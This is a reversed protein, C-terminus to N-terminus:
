GTQSRPQPPDVAADETTPGRVFKEILLRRVEEEVSLSDIAKQADEGACTMSYVLQGAEGFTMGREVGAGRVEQV